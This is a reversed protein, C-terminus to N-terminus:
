SSHRLRMPSRRPPKNEAKRLKRSSIAEYDRLTEIRADAEARARGMNVLSEPEEACRSLWPPRASRPQRSLRILAHLREEVGGRPDLAM